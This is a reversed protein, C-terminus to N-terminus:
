DTLHKKREAFEQSDIEGKAYRDKLVALARDHAQPGGGTGLAGFHTLLYVVGVVIGVVIMILVIPGLVMGFGGWHSGGMMHCGQEFARYRDPVDAVQAAVSTAAGCTLAVPPAAKWLKGFEM